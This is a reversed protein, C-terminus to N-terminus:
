SKPKVNKDDVRLNHYKKFYAEFVEKAIPVAAASTCSHETLVAVTIQPQDEYSGYGVFWGNHKENKRRKPCPKYIQDASFRRVQATGTKGSVSFPKKFQARRATGKKGNVVRWLGEKVVKFHKKDVFYDADKDESLNRVLVPDFRKEEFEWDPDVPAEMKKIIQPQYVAGDLAIASYAQALQITTVLVHGQGIATNLSEGDQWPEGWREKKWASTPVHGKVEGRIPVGTPSGLGLAKAYRSMNDPGLQLGLKYFFVNSSRELAERVEIYGQGTQTHDHWTRRGLRFRAPAYVYQNAQIEGLQLGALAVIPKFPSGPAYHDQIAKNRLPRDSNNVWKRWVEPSLRKSFENPDFSPYSVWALIEGKPTMAILSGVRENKKFAKSAVEQLEIDLTTFIDSGPTPPTNKLVEGIASMRQQTREQGKADVIVFSQGKLGRLNIDFAEELGKKGVIDKQKFKIKNDYLKNLRPIERKSIERVYGLTHAVEGAYPYHRLIFEQADLGAHDLKILEVKFLEDRSLHRKIDVPFFPGNQWRSRKVKEIIDKVELDLAPALDKALSELDDTYQPTISAKYAPLNEVLVKGDRDYVRGRPAYVDSSKLLNKNSFERFEEGHIIQLYWLRSVLIAVFFIIFAKSVKFNLDFDFQDSDNSTHFFKAM